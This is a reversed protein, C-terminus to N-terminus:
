VYKDVVFSPDVLKIECAELIQTFERLFDSLQTKAKFNRKVIQFAKFIHIYLWVRRPLRSIYNNDHCISLKVEQFHNPHIRAFLVNENVIRMNGACQPDCFFHKYIGTVGAQKLITCFLLDPTLELSPASDSQMAHQSLDEHSEPPAFACERLVEALVLQTRDMMKVNNQCYSTIRHHLSKLLVNDYHSCSMLECLLCVTNTQNKWQLVPIPSLYIPGTTKEYEPEDADNLSDLQQHKAETLSSLPTNPMVQTGAWMYCLLHTFRDPGPTSHQLFTDLTEKAEEPIKIVIKQKHHSFRRQKSYPVTEEGLVLSKVVALHSLTVNENEMADGNQKEFCRNIFFHLHFDFVTLVNQRFLQGFQIDPFHHNLLQLFESMVIMVSLSTRPAYNCKFCLLSYNLLWTQDHDRKLCISIIACLNCRTDIDLPTCLKKLREADVLEFQALEADLDCATGILDPIGTSQTENERESNGHTSNTVSQDSPTSPLKRPHAQLLLENILPSHPSNHEASWGFYMRHM